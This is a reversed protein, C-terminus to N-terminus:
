RIQRAKRTLLIFVAQTVDEAAHPDRVQRAASSYVLNIYRRVLECFAPQSGHDAYERLLELDDRDTMLVATVEGLSHVSAASTVSSNRFFPAPAASIMTCPASQSLGLQRHGRRRVNTRLM